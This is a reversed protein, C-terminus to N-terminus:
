YFIRESGGLLSSGIIFYGPSSAYPYLTAADVCDIATHKFGSPDCQWSLGTIYATRNGAPLMITDSLTILDGVRREPNGPVNELRYRLRVAQSWDRMMEALAAAQAPTQVYNNNTFRRVRRSRSSWFSNTAEATEEHQNGGVLQAGTIAAQQLVIAFANSNVITIICRQSSWNKGVSVGSAVAVGGPTVVTYTLTGEVAALPQRLAATVTRTTSAPVTIPSDPAWLQGVPGKTRASAVVTIDSFLDSDDLIINLRGGDARTYTQQSTTHPSRLWHSSNEYCYEGDVNVYFRGGCAAALAWCDEIISEDDLWAYPIQFMGPDASIDLTSVGALENLWYEIITAEDAGAIAAMQAVTTSRRDNLLLEENSRVTFTVQGADNATPSLGTPLKLVGTFVRVWSGGDIQISMRAPRHYAKGDQILSYILSSSNLPNYRRARDFLTVSMSDATGRSAFLGAGAPALSLSGRASVLNVSEDVFSSGDWAVEFKAAVTRGM